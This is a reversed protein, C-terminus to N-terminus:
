QTEKGGLLKYEPSVYKFVRRNPDSETVDTRVVWGERLHPGHGVAVSNLYRWPFAKGTGSVELVKDMGPWEGLWLEPAIDLALENCILTMEEHSLYAGSKDSYIDFVRFRLGDPSDYVFDIGGRVQLGKGYIEGYFTLGPYRALADKLNYEEAIRWWIDGHTVDPNNGDRTDTGRVKRYFYRATRWLARVRNMFPLGSDGRMVKHSGVYLRGDEFRYRANCGHIKETIVVLTGLQIADLFRSLSDLGYIPMGKPEKKTHKRETFIFHEQLDAASNHKRIGLAEQVNLGFLQDLGIVAQGPFTKDWWELPLAERYSVLLGESYVGRLRRASIRATEQGPRTALFTFASNSLPVIADVPVYVALDGVAYKGRTDLVPYGATTALIDLRDANPHSTVATVRVVEVNFDSKTPTNSM